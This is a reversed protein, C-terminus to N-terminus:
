ILPWWYKKPYVDLVVITCSRRHSKLFRLVPGVLSLPPFVYPYELFPAVRTINQAFINVGRSQPSPHLTFHPLPVGQQNTMANSDLAMLDCTHVKPGGFEQQVREWVDLHLKCDFPTLPM